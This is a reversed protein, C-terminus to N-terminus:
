SPVGAPVEGGLAKYLAQPGAGEIPLVQMGCAGLRLASPGWIVRMRGQLCDPLSM